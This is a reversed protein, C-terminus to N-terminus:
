DEEVILSALDSSHEKILEWYYEKKCKPVKITKLNECDSLFCSDFKKVTEPIVLIKLNKCNFFANHAIREV